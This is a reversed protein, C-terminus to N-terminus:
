KKGADVDEKKEVPPPADPNREPRVIEGDVPDLPMAKLPHAPPPTKPPVPAVPPAPPTVTDASKKDPDATKVPQKELAGDPTKAPAKDTTKDATAATKEGAAPDKKLMVELKGYQKEGYKTWWAQLAPGDKFNMGAIDNIARLAQQQVKQPTQENSYLRLLFPVAESARMRAIALVAQIRPADNNEKEVFAVLTGIADRYVPAAFYFQKAAITRIDLDPDDLAELFLKESALWQKPMSTLRNYAKRRLEIDSDKAALKQLVAVAEDSYEMGNATVCTYRINTILKEDQLLPLLAKAADGSKIRALAIASYLVVQENVPAKPNPVKAKRDEKMRLYYAAITDILPPAARKGLGGLKIASDMAAAPSKDLNTLLDRVVEDYNTNAFENQAEVRNGNTAGILAPREPEPSPPPPQPTTAASCTLAALATPITLLFRRAFIRM